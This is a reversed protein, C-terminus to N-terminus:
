PDETLTITLRGNKHDDGISEIRFRTETKRANSSTIRLLGTIPTSEHGIRRPDPFNYGNETPALIVGRQLELACFDVERSDGVNITIADRSGVWSLQFSEAQGDIIMWVICNRAPANFLHKQNNTVRVRYAQLTAPVTSTILPNDVLMGSLQVNPLLVRTATNWISLKPEKLQDVFIKSVFGVIAGVIVGGIDASM